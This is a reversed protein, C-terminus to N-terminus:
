SIKRNSWSSSLAASCRWFGGVPTGAPGTGVSRLSRGRWSVGSPGSCRESSRPYGEPTLCSPQVRVVAGPYLSSADPNSTSRIRSEPFGRAESRAMAFTRASSAPWQPTSRRRMANPARGRSGPSGPRAHSSSASRALTRHWRSPPMTVLVDVLRLCILYVSHGPHGIAARVFWGGHLWLSGKRGLPAQRDGTRIPLRGTRAYRLSVAASFSRCWIGSDPTAM